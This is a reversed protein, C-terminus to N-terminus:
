RAFGIVQFGSSSSIRAAGLEGLLHAARLPDRACRSAPRERHALADVAQEVGPENWSIPASVPRVPVVLVALEDRERRRVEHAPAAADVAPGDDDAAVVEGHAAAGGVADIPSM